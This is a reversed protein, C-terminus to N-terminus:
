YTIRQFLGFKHIMDAVLKIMFNSEYQSNNSIDMIFHLRDHPKQGAPM